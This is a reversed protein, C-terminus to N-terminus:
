MVAAYSPTAGDSLSFRTVMGMSFFSRSRSFTLSIVETDDSPMDKMAMSNVGLSFRSLARCFTFSLISRALGSRGSSRSSGMTSTKLKEVSKGIREM